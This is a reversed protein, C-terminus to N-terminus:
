AITASWFTRSLMDVVLNLHAVALDYRMRKPGLIAVTGTTGDATLYARAVLACDALAPHGAENGIITTTRSPTAQSLLGSLPDPQEFLLMLAQLREADRFERYDLMNSAGEFLFPRSDQRSAHLFDAAQRCFAADAYLGRALHLLAEASIASLKSGRCQENLRHTFIRLHSREPMQTMTVLRHSIRGSTGVVVLLVQHRSFATVEAYHLREEEWDPASALSAQRTLRALLRCTLQLAPEIDQQHQMAAAITRATEPDPELRPLLRDVYYRYGADTPIRGASTHPHRLLGKAELSAMRNRVTAPSVSRLRAAVAESGAAEGTAIHEAIVAALTDQEGPTCEM